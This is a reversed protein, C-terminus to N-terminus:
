PIDSASARSAFKPRHRSSFVPFSCVTTGPLCGNAYVDDSVQSECTTLAYKFTSATDLVMAFAPVIDTGGDCWGANTGHRHPKGYEQSHSLHRYGDNQKIHQVARAIHMHAAAM